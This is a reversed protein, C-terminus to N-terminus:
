NRKFLARNEEIEDRNLLIIQQEKAPRAECEKDLRFQKEFYFYLASRVKITVSGNVMGYDSEIIRRQSDTLDPHPGIKVNLFNNWETDATPDIEVPQFDKAHLIRAFLFDRFSKRIFCYGHVHWRHGDYALTHPAIRRWIPNDRSMSQYEIELSMKERIAKLLKRLIEPNVSRIPNPTIDFSPLAGLFSEEGKIINASFLRLQSLYQSSDKSTFMPKFKETSFYFKKSKDYGINNPAINQYERLDASAQPISIGFFNKLDIRNIRGEWYLRFDIFELRRKISWAM